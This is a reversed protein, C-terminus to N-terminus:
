VFILLTARIRGTFPEPTPSGILPDGSKGFPSLPLYFKQM